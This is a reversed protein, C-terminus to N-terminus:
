AFLFTVTGAPIIRAPQGVATAGDPVDTLVVSMAGIRCNNGVRVDGLIQAYAGLEVNDGLVPSPGAEHRNGITVGQRLTCNSGIVASGNIFICGFHWIRLGKGITASKPLSIGISTEVLRFLLWYLSLLIKRAIGPAKRDVRRGFRYVWIAWLSQEKLFARPQGVRALDAQWDADRPAFM